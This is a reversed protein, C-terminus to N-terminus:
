DPAKSETRKRVLWGRRRKDLIAALTVLWPGAMIAISAAAAIHQDLASQEAVRGDIIGAAVLLRMSLMVLAPIAVALLYYKLKAGAPFDLSRILIVQVAANLVVILYIVVSDSM